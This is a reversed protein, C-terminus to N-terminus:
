ENVRKLDGEIKVDYNEDIVWGIFREKIFKIILDNGQHEHIYDARSIFRQTIFVDWRNEPRRLDELESFLTKIRVNEAKWIWYLPHNMDVPVLTFENPEDLEKFIDKLQKVSITKM